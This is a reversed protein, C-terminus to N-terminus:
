YPYIGYLAQSARADSKITKNISRMKTWQRRTNSAQFKVVM